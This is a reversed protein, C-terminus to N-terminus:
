CTMRIFFFDQLGTLNLLILYILHNSKFYIFTLKDFTGVTNGDFKLSYFLLCMDWAHLEISAKM